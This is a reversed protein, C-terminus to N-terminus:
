HLGIRTLVASHDSVWDDPGENFVVASDIVSFGKTFVYDIREPTEQEHTFLDFAYPNGPVAFTCGNYHDAESCCNDCNSHSHSYTDVFGLDQTILQYVGSNLEEPVDLNTNFDGGLIIPNTGWIFNEISRIFDALVHAQVLREEPDCFACLHTNYVNIEGFRSIKVRSMMANRRLPIMLNGFPEEIVFPLPTSLTFLIECRSLIANGVSFVGPLGNALRYSLNYSLGNQALLQRLDLSSNITRSLFGGVVEQLLILDVPEGSNAQQKVFAAIRDLRIQRDKIESFLLNITMVNLHGRTSIDPCQAPSSIAGILSAAFILCIMIIKARISKM